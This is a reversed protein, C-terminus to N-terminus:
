KWYIGRSEYGYTPVTTTVPITAVPASTIIINSHDNIPEESLISSKRRKHYWWVTGAIIIAGIVVGLIIGIIAEIGTSNHNLDSETNNSATNTSTSTSTGLNTSTSSDSNPPITKLETNNKVYHIMRILDDSHTDASIDSIM